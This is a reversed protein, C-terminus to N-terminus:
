HYFTTHIIQSRTPGNPSDTSSESPFPPSLSTAIRLNEIQYGGGANTLSRPTPVRSYTNFTTVGM